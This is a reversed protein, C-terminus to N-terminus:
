GRKNKNDAIAAMANLTYAFFAGFVFTLVIKVIPTLFVQMRESMFKTAVKVMAIGTDIKKRLCCLVLAYILFTVGMGIFLGLNGIALGIIAMGLIISMSLVIMFYVMPRPFTKLLLVYIFSTLVASAIGAILVIANKQIYLDEREAERLPGEVPELSNFESIELVGVGMFIVLFVLFM